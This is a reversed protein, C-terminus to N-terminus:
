FQKDLRQGSITWTWNKDFIQRVSIEIQPELCKMKSKDLIQGHGLNTWNKDLMHGFPSVSHQTEVIVGNEILVLISYLHNYLKLESNQTM